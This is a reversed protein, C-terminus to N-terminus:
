LGPFHVFDFSMKVIRIATSVVVVIERITTEGVLKEAHPYYRIELPGDHEKEKLEHGRHHYLESRIQICFQCGNCASHFLEGISGHHASVYYHSGIHTPQLSKPLGQWRDADRNIEVTLSSTSFEVCLCKSCLM